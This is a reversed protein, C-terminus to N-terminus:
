ASGKLHIWDAGLTGNLDSLYGAGTVYQLESEAQELRLAFRQREAGAIMNRQSLFHKLSAVHGQWLAIDRQQKIALRERYWDSALMHDREFMRRIEPHRADRGQYEGTAMITLIARLPPCADHLTGDDLYSQAIRRQAEVINEVGDVFAELDQTEPRLMAEDFVSTPNDFIKGFYAHAFSGTIRYGLRSAQILRGNHYFDTVPELHGREIMVRPCRQSVSLRCWLEPILLSIDHDVRLEPGIYGAATSFGQYGTLIYSVLANNLDATPSLANFPGKTLAGESGAGTTSPSKGTLSAIFDMFLEPLEQYHIPNYVALPRIGHAPDPPNNRRGPLVESVPFHVAEQLPIRRHLRTGIEAIYRDRPNALDPRLQLYRVNATPKGDVVRPHASSVFYSGLPAVAAARVLQKMPESFRELGIADEMLERADTPTLPEFNSIFNNPGALDSEAQLDLGRHVADDPRQFLRSECNATLKVSPYDYEPNLHALRSAPVTVSVTIDDEMQIKEAGVFDQRLKYMRWAGDGEVGVRLFSAVLRRGDYKLEHGPYGNVMDVSFHPRWHAGWEPQYFRKIVFVLARVHQPISRVWLNYEDAFESESLTLLKIVSGLTRDPSLLTREDMGDVPPNRFRQSYDKDFIEQIRAFDEDIDAVYFPGFLVTGAISKSIESKGGGSVTCPKHCFTGEAETGILRWTPAHPHKEMHVKYGFPHIYTHGALLKTECERGRRMWSIRQRRLDMSADEPVYIIDPFRKDVGYGEESVHMLDGFLAVLEDFNHGQMSIRSDPTFSEGLNYSPFALAGGSHEEECGGYLNAAYSIQSKIEKKSYGFYNDAILTVIVGRMDRCTVKFPVGENYLEDHQRWCMGDRRQRETAADWHPLGLESKTLKLLQPALVVCGTHGTWHLPDLAADNEPLCPNGANGFIREVFDLNSVLSGPVFFRTEMTKEPTIGDVAPAVLPRMLLSVWTEAQEAQGSTFPLRMLESPPNFAAHLLGAFAAVPVAKKDGPIPLEGDVIHFVGKTTRRDSRPNHLVGQMLRYSDVFEASFTNGEAPLSLERALHPRDLVFSTGPLVVESQVGRQKFYTNLFNQIRQDAPCRYDTLLRKQHQYSRLLDGAIQLQSHAAGGQHTPLGLAALHLNIHQVLESRDSSAQNLGSDNRTELQM